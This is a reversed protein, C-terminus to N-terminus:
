KILTGLFKTYNSSHKVSTKNVNVKFLLETELYNIITNQIEIATIKPGVFGLLYDDAYRIYYLRSFKSDNKETRCLGKSLARNHKVKKLSDELEPYINIINKDQSDLWHANKYEKNTSRIKGFNYKPILNDVIFRDLEHMYLNCLIPSIIGGQPLGEFTPNFGM